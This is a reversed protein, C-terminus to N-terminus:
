HFLIKSGFSHFHVLFNVELGRVSQKLSGTSRTAIFEHTRMVDYQPM